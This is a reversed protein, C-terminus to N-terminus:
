QSGLVDDHDAIASALKALEDEPASQMADILSQRRREKEKREVEQKTPPLKENERDHEKAQEFNTIALPYSYNQILRHIILTIMYIQRGKKIGEAGLALYGPPLATTGM